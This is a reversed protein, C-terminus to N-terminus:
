PEAGDANLDRLGQGLGSARGERRQLSLHVGRRSDRGHFSEAATDEGAREQPGVEFVLRLGGPHQAGQM